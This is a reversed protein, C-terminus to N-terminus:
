QIQWACRSQYLGCSRGNTRMSSVDHRACFYSQKYHEFDFHRTSDFLLLWQLLVFCNGARTKDAVPPPPWEPGLLPGVVVTNPGFWSAVTPRRRCMCSSSRTRLVSPAPVSHLIRCDHHHPHFGQNHWRPLPTKHNRKRRTPHFQSLTDKSEICSGFCSSVVTHRIVDRDVRLLIRRTTLSSTEVVVFRLCLFFFFFFFFRYRKTPQM